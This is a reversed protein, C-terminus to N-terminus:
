YYTSIDFWLPFYKQFSFEFFKNTEIKDHAEKMQDLADCHKEQCSRDDLFDTFELGADNLEILGEIRLSAWKFDSWFDQKVQWEADQDCREEQNWRNCM